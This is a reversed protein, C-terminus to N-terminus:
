RISFTEVVVNYSVVVADDLLYIRPLDVCYNYYDDNLTVTNGKGVYKLSDRHWHGIYIHRINKKDLYRYLDVLKCSYWQDLWYDTKSWVGCGYEMWASLDAELLDFDDPLKGAQRHMQGRAPAFEIWDPSPFFGHLILRDDFIQYLRPKGKISYKSEGINNPDDWIVGKEGNEDVDYFNDILWETIGTERLRRVIKFQLDLHNLQGFSDIKFHEKAAKNWDEQFYTKYGGSLQIATDVTGNHLDVSNFYGRRIIELLLLEHNGLIMIKNNISDLYEKMELSEPGRDFIDGNVILMHNDFNKKFGKKELAKEFESKFSHLDSVVFYKM